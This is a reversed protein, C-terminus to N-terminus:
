QGKRKLTLVVDNEELIAIVDKGLLPQKNFRKVVYPAITEATYRSRPIMRTMASAMDVLTAEGILTQKWGILKLAFEGEDQETQLTHGGYRYAADTTLVDLAAAIFGDIIVYMARRDDFPVYIWDPETRRLVRNVAQALRFKGDWHRGIQSPPSALVINRRKALSAIPM